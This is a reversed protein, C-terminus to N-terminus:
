LSFLTGLEDLRARIDAALAGTAAPHADEGLARLTNAAEEMWAVMYPMGPCGCATRDPRCSHAPDTQTQAAQVSWQRYSHKGLWGTRAPIVHQLAEVMAETGAGGEHSVRVTEADLDHRHIRLM